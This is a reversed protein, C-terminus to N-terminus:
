TTFFDSHINSYFLFLVSGIRTSIAIRKNFVTALKSNPRNEAEATLFPCLFLYYFDNVVFSKKLEM